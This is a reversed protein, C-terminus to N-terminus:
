PTAPAHARMALDIGSVVLVICGLPWVGMWFFLVSPMAIPLTIANSGIPSVPRAVAAAALVVGLLGVILGAPGAGAENAYYEFGRLPSRGLVRQDALGASGFLYAAFTIFYAALALQAVTAVSGLLTTARQRRAHSHLRDYRWGIDAPIGALMRGLRERVVRSSSWGSARRSHAHEALDSDIEARREATITRDLGATYRCVWWRVLRTSRDDFAATM